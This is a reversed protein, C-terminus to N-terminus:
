KTVDCTSASRNKQIYQAAVQIKQKKQISRLPTGSKRVYETGFQHPSLHLSLKGGGVFRSKDM